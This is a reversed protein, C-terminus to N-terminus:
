EWKDEEDLIPTYNKQEEELKQQKKSIKPAIEEEEEDDDEYLGSDRSKKVRTIIVYALAAIVLVIVGYIIYKLFGLEAKKLQGWLDDMKAQTEPNLWLFEDYAKELRHSAPYGNPDQYYPFNKDQTVLKNPSSYGTYCANAFSIEKTCMFNIFEEALVKNKAGKPICFADVYKNAISNNISTFKLDENNEMMVLADGYYCPALWAEGKEMKNFVEDTVYAQVLPKQEVLLKYAEDWYSLDNTNITINENNKDSSLKALGIAFTDRPNNFMLIKNKYDENWLIDWTSVDGTVYKSNYVIGVTGWLYPVSYKHEPDYNWADGKFNDDINAYNPINAFNLEELMGEKIFRNIMYDSPVIVDYNAGGLKLKTYLSENNEFTSYNVKVTKGYTKKYYEEFAKIVDGSYDCPVSGEGTGDDIYEGWNYVNLELTEEEASAFLGMSCLVTLALCLASVRKLVLAFKKM